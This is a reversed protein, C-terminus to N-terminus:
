MLLGMIDTQGSLPLNSKSEQKLCYEGFTDMWFNDSKRKYNLLLKHLTM